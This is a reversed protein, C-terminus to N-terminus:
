KKKKKKEERSEEAIRWGCQSCFKADALVLASCAPCTTVKETVAGQERQAPPIVSIAKGCSNCFTAGILVPSRCYPCIQGVKASRMSELVGLEEEWQDIQLHIEDLTRCPEQLSPDELKGNKYNEYALQGLYMIYQDRSRYLEKIQKKVQGISLGPRPM